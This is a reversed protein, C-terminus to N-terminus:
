RGGHGGRGTVSKALMKRFKNENHEYEQNKVDPSKHNLDEDNDLKGRKLACEYAQVKSKECEKPCKLKQIQEIMCAHYSNNGETAGKEPGCIKEAAPRGKMLCPLCTHCHKEPDQHGIDISCMKDKAQKILWDCMEYVGPKDDMVCEYAQVKSSECEKPCKLKKIQEVMCGHYAHNEKTGEKEPGCIKDAVPEGKNLCPLCTNCHAEPDQNGIDIPCMRDKVLEIFMNCMEGVDPEGDDLSKALFKYSIHNVAM